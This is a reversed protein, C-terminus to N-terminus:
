LKQLHIFCCYLAVTIYGESIPLYIRNVKHHCIDLPSLDKVFNAEMLFKEDATKMEFPSRSGSAVQLAQRRTPFDGDQDESKEGFLWTLFGNTPKVATISILICILLKKHPM